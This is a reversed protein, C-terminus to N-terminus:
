EYYCRSGQNLSESVVLQIWSKRGDPMALRECLDTGRGRDTRM